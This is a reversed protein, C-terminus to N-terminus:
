SGNDRNGDVRDGLSRLAYSGLWPYRSPRQACGQELEDFLARITPRAVEDGLELLEEMALITGRTYPPALAARWATLAVTRDAGLPREPERVAATSVVPIGIRYLMTCVVRGDTERGSALHARVRAANWRWRPPCAPSLIIHLARGRVDATHWYVAPAVRVAPDTALAHIVGLSREVLPDAAAVRALDGPLIPTWHNERIGAIALAADLRIRPSAHSLLPRYAATFDGDHHRRLEAISTLVVIDDPHQLDALLLSRYGAPDESRFRRRLWREQDEGLHTEHDNAHIRVAARDSDWRHRFAIRECAMAAERRLRGAWYGRDGTPDDAGLGAVWARMGPVDDEGGLAGQIQLGVSGRLHSAADVGTSSIRAPRALLARALALCAARDEPRGRAAELSLRIEGTRNEAALAADVIDYIVELKVNDLDREENTWSRRRQVAFSQWGAADPRRWMLLRAPAHSSSAVRHSAQNGWVVTGDPREIKEGARERQADPRRALADVHRILRWTDEWHEAAVVFREVSREERPSHAWTRRLDVAVVEITDERWCLRTVTYNIHGRIYIIDLANPIDTAVRGAIHLRAADFGDDHAAAVLGVAREHLRTETAASLGGLLLLLIALRM